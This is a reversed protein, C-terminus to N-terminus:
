GMHGWRVAHEGEIDDILCRDTRVEVGCSGMHVKGLHQSVQYNGWGLIAGDSGM